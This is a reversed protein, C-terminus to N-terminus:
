SMPESDAQQPLNTSIPKTCNMLLEQAYDLADYAEAFTAANAAVLAAAKEALAKVGDTVNPVRYAKSM